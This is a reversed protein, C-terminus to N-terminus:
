AALNGAETNVQDWAQLLCFTGQRHCLDVVRHVCQLFNVVDAKLLPPQAGEYAHPRCDQAGAGPIRGSAAVGAAACVVASM